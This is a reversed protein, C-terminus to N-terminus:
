LIHRRASPMRNRIEVDETQLSKALRLWEGAKQVELQCSGGDNTEAGFYFNFMAAHVHVRTCALPVEEGALSGANLDGSVHLSPNCRCLLTQRQELIFNFM